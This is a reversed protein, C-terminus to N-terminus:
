LYLGTSLVCCCARAAGAGALIWTQHGIWGSPLVQECADSPHKRRQQGRVRPFLLPVIGLLVGREIANVDLM